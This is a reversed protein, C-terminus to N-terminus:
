NSRSIRKKTIPWNLKPFERARFYPFYQDMINIFTNKSIEEALFKVIKETGALKNPLVLHRVILGKMAIENKNLILDGVQRHMEKIAAKMIEFNLIDQLM